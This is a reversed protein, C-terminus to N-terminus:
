WSMGRGRGSRGKHAEEELLCRGVEASADLTEPQRLALKCSRNPPASDITIEGERDLLKMLEFAAGFM